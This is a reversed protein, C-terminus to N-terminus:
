PCLCPCSKLTFNCKVALFGTCLVLIGGHFNRSYLNWSVLYSCTYKWIGYQSVLTRTLLNTWMHNFVKFTNSEILTDLIHERATEDALASLLTKAWVKKSVNFFDCQYNTYWFHCVVESTWIWYTPGDMPGFLTYKHGDMPHRQMDIDWVDILVERSACSNPFM